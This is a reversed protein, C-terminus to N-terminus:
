LTGQPGKLVEIRDIDNFALLAGGSRAAYVGDIYVGVASETGIGFDSTSIGRLSYNPQTPQSGDVVLGPVFLSIKSLDTAAQTDIQKATLIQLAIPVQEMQQTRSQATVTINGLQQAKGTDAAPRGTAAKKAPAASGTTQGAEDAMAPAAAFLWLAASGYLVHRLCVSLVSPRMKM